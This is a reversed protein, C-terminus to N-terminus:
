MAVGASFHSRAAPSTKSKGGAAREMRALAPDM